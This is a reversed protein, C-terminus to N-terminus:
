LPLARSPNDLIGAAGECGERLFSSKGLLLYIEVWMFCGFKVFDLRLCSRNLDKYVWTIGRWSLSSSSKAWLAQQHNLPSCSISSKASLFEIPCTTHLAPSLMLCSRTGTGSTAPARLERACGRSPHSPSAPIRSLGERARGSSPPIGSSQM